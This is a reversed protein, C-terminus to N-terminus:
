LISRVLDDGLFVYDRLDRADDHGYGDAHNVLMMAGSDMSLRSFSSPPANVM